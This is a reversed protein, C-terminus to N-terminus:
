DEEAAALIKAPQLPISVTVTTGEGPRSSIEFDGGLMGVRERMGALGVREGPGSGSHIESPDFGQGRDRVVLHVEERGGDTQRRLEIRVQHTQAHKKLNNIAEQAVRFLAIEITPPLREEGIDEVYEVEYGEDRLQSVEFSIAAALGFDDLTTPRLNAIIQRADSVTRRVLRLILDLDRRSREGEPQYRRAFAQLHQHAAAAVQALGDHVEYSVRRREEEQAVFLRAVLDALRREREALEGYLRANELARAAQAALSGLLEVTDDEALSEPGYAELVGAIRERTRLPMCLGVLHGAETGPRRLRFLRYDGTELVEQRAREAEQAYRARQWLGELGVARQIRVQGEEDPVSIVAATLGSVGQMIKLLRTLIEEFELTSGLIQGAERLALLVDLGHRLERETRKRESADEVVVVFYAIEGSPRRVPSVTLDLWVETGDERMYRKEMSGSGDELPTQGSDDPAGSYIIERFTTESLLRERDYGLIECLRENVRLWSGDLSVHAMGVAAQEFTARFREESERLEKEARKRETIDRISCVVRGVMPDDLLDTCVAEFHHVSGDRAPTRYEFPWRLGPEGRRGAFAAAALDADAPHVLERINKGVREEPAYGLVREVAPSEYVVTGNEDLILAIEPANHVLSRFQKESRRAAEREARTRQRSLLIATALASIVAGEVVFLGLGLLEDLHEVRFSYAPPLLLFYVALAALVTAFLGPGLGGLLTGVMVAALLLLFPNEDGTVSELPIRIILALSVMAAAM